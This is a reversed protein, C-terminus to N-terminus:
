SRIIASYTWVLTIIPLFGIRVFSLDFKTPSLSRRILILIVTAWHSLVAVACARRTEGHDMMLFSSIVIPIQVKLATIIAANYEPAYDTWNPKAKETSPARNGVSLSPHEQQPKM